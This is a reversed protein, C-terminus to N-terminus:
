NGSPKAEHKRKYDENGGFQVVKWKNRPSDREVVKWKNRPSDREVVKWKNRPSDRELYGNGRTDRWLM